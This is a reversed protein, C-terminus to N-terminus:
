QESAGGEEEADDEELSRLYQGLLVLSSTDELGGLVDILESKSVEYELPPKGDVIRTRRIIFDKPGDFMLVMRFMGPLDGEPPTDFNSTDFWAKVVTGKGEESSLSMGGGSQESTQLLFPLGLGVKRHPHKIGDTIFPDMVKAQVEPSMGKGNDKV